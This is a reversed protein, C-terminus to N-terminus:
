RVEKETSCRHVLESILRSRTTALYKKAHGLSNSHMTFQLFSTASGFNAYRVDKDSLYQFVSTCIGLDFANTDDDHEGRSRADRVANQEACWSRLDTCLLTTTAGAPASRSARRARLIKRSRSVRDFAHASPEIGLVRRPKFKKVCEHLLCGLGFGFDAISEVCHMDELKMLAHLYSAHQRANGVGDM